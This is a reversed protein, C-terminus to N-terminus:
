QDRIGLENIYPQIEHILKVSRHNGLFANAINLRGVENKQALVHDYEAETLEEDPNVPEKKFNILATEVGRLMEMTVHDHGVVERTLELIHPSLTIRGGPFVFGFKALHDIAQSLEAQFQELTKSEVKEAPEKLDETNKMLQEAEPNFGITEPSM